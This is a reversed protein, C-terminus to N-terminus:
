KKDIKELKIVINQKDEPPTLSAKQEEENKNQV